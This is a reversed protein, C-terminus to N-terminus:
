QEGFIIAAMMAEDQVDARLSALMAAKEAQFETGTMWTGWGGASTFGEFQDLESNFRFVGPVASPSREATTGKPMLVGDKILFQANGLIMIGNTAVLPQRYDAM